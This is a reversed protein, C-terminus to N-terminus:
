FKKRTCRRWCPATVVRLMGVYRRLSNIESNVSDEVSILGRGGESRSFYLRDGDAQPDNQANKYGNDTARREDM